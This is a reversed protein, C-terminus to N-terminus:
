YKPQNVLINMFKMEDNMKAFTENLPKTPDRLDALVDDRIAHITAITEHQWKAISKRKQREVRMTKATKIIGGGIVTIGAFIAVVAIQENKM